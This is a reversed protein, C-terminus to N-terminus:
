ENPYEKDMLNRGLVMQDWQVFHWSDTSDLEAQAQDTPMDRLALYLLMGYTIREVKGEDFLAMSNEQNSRHCYRWGMAPPWLQIASISIGV